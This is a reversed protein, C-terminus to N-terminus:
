RCKDSSKSGTQIKLTASSKLYNRRFGQPSNDFYYDDAPTLDLCVHDGLPISVFFRGYAQWASANNFMPVYNAEATISWSGDGAIYHAQTHIRSGALDLNKGSHLRENFYRLDAWLEASFRSTRSPRYTPFLIGAGGSPQAAMGLATNLFWDGVGYIKFSGIPRSLMATADFVDTRISPKHLSLNHQHTGDVALSFHDSGGFYLDSQFVGGLTQLSQTAQVFSEPAALGVSWRSLPPNVSPDAATLPTQAVPPQAPSQSDEIPSDSLQAPAHDTRVPRIASVLSANSPNGSAVPRMIVAGADESSSAIKLRAQRDSWVITAVASHFCLMTDEMAPGAERLPRTDVCAPQGLSTSELQLEGIRDAAWRATLLSGLIEEAPQLRVANSDASLLEGTVRDGNQFVVRVRVGASAAIASTQLVILSCILIKVRNNGRQLLINANNNKTLHRQPFLRRFLVYFDLSGAQPWKNIEALFCLLCALRAALNM